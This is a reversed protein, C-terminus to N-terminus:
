NAKIKGSILAQLYFNQDMFKLRWDRGHHIHFARVNAIYSKKHASWYCGDGEETELCLGKATKNRTMQNGCCDCEIIEKPDLAVEKTENAHCQKCLDGNVFDERNNSELGCLICIDLM